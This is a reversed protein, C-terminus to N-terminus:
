STGNVRVKMKKNNEIQNNRAEPSVSDQSATLKGSPHANTM